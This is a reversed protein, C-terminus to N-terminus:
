EICILQQDKYETLVVLMRSPVLMIVLRNVLLIQLTVHSNVSDVM